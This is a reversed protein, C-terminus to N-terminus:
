EAAAHEGEAPVEGPERSTRRKKAAPQLGLSDPMIESIVNDFGPRRKNAEAADGLQGSGRRSSDESDM